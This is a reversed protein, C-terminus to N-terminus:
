GSQSGQNAKEISEVLSLFCEKVPHELADPQQADLTLQDPSRNLYVPLRQPLNLGLAWSPSGSQYHNNMRLDGLEVALNNEANLQTDCLTEHQETGETLRKAAKNQKDAHIQKMLDGIILDKQVSIKETTHTITPLGNLQQRLRSRPSRARSGSLLSNSQREVEETLM